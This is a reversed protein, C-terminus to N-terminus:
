LIENPSKRKADLQSKQSAYHQMYISKNASVLLFYEVNMVSTKKRPLQSSSHFVPM